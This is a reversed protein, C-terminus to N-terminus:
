ISRRPLPPANTFTPAGGRTLADHAAALADIQDDRRDRVGTFSKVEGLLPDLWPPASRPCLIKGANWSAAAPTARVFKDGVAPKTEIHVGQGKLFDITGKETGGVYGFLKAGPYAQRLAKLREGFAPAPVQLRVVELLYYLGGSEALVVAVSYDSSTRETYALDIGICVRFGRPLEDYLHVDGFVAGGKPRPRQDYLSAWDYEGMERRREELFWLPRAEPWLAEGPQRTDGPDTGDAIARLVIVEWGDPQDDQLWGILDDPHWRTHVVIVSATPHVRTMATSPWWGKIGERITASEAEARNKHPDDVLLVGDVPSGTLPGGVGTALLGGGATTVWDNVKNADARLQVGAALAYDRAQRSKTFALSAAYSAYANRLEPRKRLLWALGHLITETKGHQPPVSVLARVREGRAIREFLDTLRQLHRPSSWKPTIAPIAEQLPGDLRRRRRLELEARAQLALHAPSPKSSPM